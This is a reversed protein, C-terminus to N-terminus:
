RRPASIKEQHLKELADACREMGDTVFNAGDQQLNLILALEGNANWEFPCALAASSPRNQNARKVLTQFSDDPFSAVTLILRQLSSEFERDGTTGRGAQRISQEVAKLPEKSAGSAEAPGVPMQGRHAAVRAESPLVIPSTVLRVILIVLAIGALIQLWTKPEAWPSFAKSPVPATVEARAEILAPRTAREVPVNLRLDKEESGVGLAGYKKFREIDANARALAAAPPPRRAELMKQQQAHLKARLDALEDDVTFATPSELVKYAVGNDVVESSAFKDIRKGLADRQEASESKAASDTLTNRDKHTSM